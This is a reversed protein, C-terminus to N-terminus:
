ICRLDILQPAINTMSDIDCTTKRVAECNQCWRSFLINQCFSINNWEVMGLKKLRFGSVCMYKKPRLQQAQITQLGWVVVGIAWDTRCPQSCVATARTRTAIDVLVRCCTHITPKRLIEWDYPRSSCMNTTLPHQLIFLYTSIVVMAKRWRLVAVMTMSVRHPTHVLSHTLCSYTGYSKEVELCGGNYFESQSTHLHTLSHTLSHSRALSRAFFAFLSKNLTPKQVSQFVLLLPGQVRRLEQETLFLKRCNRIWVKIGTSM